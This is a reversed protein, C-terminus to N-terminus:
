KRIDEWDEEVLCLDEIDQKDAERLDWFCNECFETYESSEYWEDESGEYDMEAIHENNMIYECFGEQMFNEAQLQSDAIIAHIEDHGCYGCSYIGIFKM